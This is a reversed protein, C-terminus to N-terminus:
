SDSDSIIRRCFNADQQDGPRLSGEKMKLLTEPTAVRINQGEVDIARFELDDYSILEGQKTMIDIVTGTPSGYRIVPYEVLESYTIESIDADNYIADLAQRLRAVNEEELRVFLDIDMTHRPMGHLIVAFGGVLVYEVGEQEMAQLIKLFEDYQDM